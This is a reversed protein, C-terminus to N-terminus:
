SVAFEEGAMVAKEWAVQQALGEDLSYEPKFDLHKQAQATDAWTDRVDGRNKEKYIIDAKVGMVAEIKEIVGALSIRSGGGLNFIKGAVPKQSAAINASIIDQVFTFDRTQKGDGLVTIPEDNLMAKIFINFAMDPRQRPGYV